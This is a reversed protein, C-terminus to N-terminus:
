AAMHGASAPALANIAGIADCLARHETSHTGGLM